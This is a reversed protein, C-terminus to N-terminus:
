KAITYNEQLTVEKNLIMNSSDNGIFITYSGKEAFFCDKEEDFYTFALEDLELTITTSELSHLFVKKFGRLEKYPREILSDNAHVYLQM